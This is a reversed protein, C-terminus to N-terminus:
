DGSVLSRPMLQAGSLRSCHECLGRLFCSDCKPENPRCYSSGINWLANDLLWPNKPHMRRSLDIAEDPTALRGFFVRGLVRKVHIDAKLDCAGQLWGCDYLGGVAMRSLQDGLGIEILRQTAQDATTGDWIIRADGDYRDVIAKGIKWVREHAAPFRHLKYESFRKAWRSLPESVITEWLSEPDGLVQEAFRKANDWPAPLRMQYDLVCALIYKNASKKSRAERGSEGIWYWGSRDISRNKILIDAVQRLATECVRAATAPVREGLFGAKQPSRGACGLEETHDRSTNESSDGSSNEKPEEVGFGGSGAQLGKIRDVEKV